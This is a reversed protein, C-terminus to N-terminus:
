WWFQHGGHLRSLDPSVTVGTFGDCHDITSSGTTRHVRRCRRQAALRFLARRRDPRKRQRTRAGSFERWWRRDGAGQWGRQLSPPSSSAMSTSCSNATAVNHRRDLQVVRGDLPVPQTPTSPPPPTATSALRTSPRVKGTDGRLQLYFASTTSGNSRPSRRIDGLSNLNVWASVSFAACTPISRRFVVNRQKGPAHGARTSPGGRLVWGADRIGESSTSLVVDTATTSM